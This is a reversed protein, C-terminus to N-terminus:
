NEHKQLIIEDIKRIQERTSRCDKLEVKIKQTNSSIANIGIGFYSAIQALSYIKKCHMAALYMAIKRAARDSGKRVTIKRCTSLSFYAKIIKVIDNVTPTNIEALVPQERKDIENDKKTLYKRTIMDRFPESGIIHRREDPSLEEYNDKLLGKDTYIQFNKIKDELKRGWSSLVFSTNIWKPKRAVGLYYCYSSWQYNRLIKKLERLPTNKFAKIKVPNLHIYRSLKNKYRETEILQAKYRGQFLHGSKSYKNNMTLTFSTNFSQMFKGLNAHATKLFIHYHNPMLCYSYVKVDYLLAYEELKVLFLRYDDDSFFFKIM